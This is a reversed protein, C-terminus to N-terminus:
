AWALIPTSDSATSRMRAAPQIPSNLSRFEGANIYSFKM